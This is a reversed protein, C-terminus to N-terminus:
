GFVAASRGVERLGNLDHVDTAQAPIEAVPVSRHAATFREALMRERSAQETALAHLRLLGETLERAHNDVAGEVHASGAGSDAAALNAPTDAAASSAKADAPVLATLSALADAAALAASSTLGEVQVRHVRNLLLGALPMREDRLREVFYSAERLADREPSAVVLFATGPAQLMAFTREARERFGGFTTDMASIFAQMDKLLQNGLLKTLVGAFL